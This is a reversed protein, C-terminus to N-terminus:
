REFMDCLEFYYTIIGAAAWVRKPEKLDNSAVYHLLEGFLQDSNMTGAAILRHYEAVLSQVARSSYDPDPHRSIYDQVM